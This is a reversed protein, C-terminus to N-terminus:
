SREVGPTNRRGAPVTYEQGVIGDRFQIVREGFHAMHDDHTIQVVTKGEAHLDQFLGMIDESTVSDLNGTPEDALLIPPDLALARAIAVRQKQGGSLESPRHRARDGLGVSDLIRAARYKREGYPVGAFAMPLMVNQEATARPLLHFAQFVFGLAKRRGTAQQKASLHQVANGLIKIDGRSPTDLMGIMNLLTSKGSGSPGMISVFEGRQIELDVGRLAHVQNPGHGYVKHLDRTQIVAM